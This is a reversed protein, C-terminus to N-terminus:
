ARMKGHKLREAMLEPTPLRTAGPGEIVFSAACNAYRAAETVDGTERLRLLFGVAFMDGAGTPDVVKAEFAPSREQRGCQYVTAGQEAVTVVLLRAERKLRELLELQDGVDEPSLIIVDALPLVDDLGHWPAPWVRGDGDWRRLWGQPTLGRLGPSADLMACVQDKAIENAIPGLHMIPADVWAPPLDDLTLSAAQARIYQQRASGVYTNEFTTTDQAPLNIVEVGPEALLPALAVSGRQRADASTLVGVQYGLRAAALAAFTVTGGARMGGDPLLDCAVHGIVCYDPCVVSHGM